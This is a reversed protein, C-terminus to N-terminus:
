SHAFLVLLKGIPISAIQTFLDLIVNGDVDMVYNGYSNDYDVFFQCGMSNQSLPLM